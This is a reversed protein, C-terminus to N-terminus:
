SMLANAAVALQEARETIFMKYDDCFLSKPCLARDLIHDANAGLKHFYKSPAIGGLERNDARSVFAFNALVSEDIELQGSARLFSRPFLHHFETRNSDRLTESLSIPAGSIFSLPAWQALMLIFSKTNVNGMGFVNEIFFDPAIVVTGDGLATPLGDRLKAMEEIDTKLNRLVGSSYRRSFASRWFWRNITQRQTDSYKIEKNGPVAFFVSLPVLITPFPLNALSYVSFNTRLYDVAGRVGNLVREFNDRVTQGNLSMLAEPSADAKLVASCCRLLLNSDGGVDAFGFPELQDSLEAFQEQLQFDESWTWASLLQLTDLPVGQRNVREFIIAVTAKDDTKSLQLPILTEKFVSQVDDIRKATHDDFEKTAKRYATTDFLTNLPFHRKPDAEEPSLAVFQTEQANGQAQLDFYIDRWFVSNVM